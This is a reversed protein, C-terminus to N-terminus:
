IPFSVGGEELLKHWEADQTLWSEHENLHAWRGQLCGLDAASELLPIARRLFDKPPVFDADFVATYAGRACALGNALAGAKFARRNGRRVVYVDVGRMRLKKVVDDVLDQTGDTSDDLVQIEHRGVPYDM